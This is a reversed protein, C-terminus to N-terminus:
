RVPPWPRSREPRRPCWSRSRPSRTPATRSVLNV